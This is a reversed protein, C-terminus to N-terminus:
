RIRDKAKDRLASEIQPNIGRNRALILKNEKNKEVLSKCSKLARSMGRNGDIM